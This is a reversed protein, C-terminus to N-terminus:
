FIKSNKSIYYKRDYYKKPNRIKKIDFISILFPIIPCITGVVYSIYNHWNIKVKAKTWNIIYKGDRDKFTGRLIKILDLFTGLGWVVLIVILFMISEDDDLFTNINGSDVLLICLLCFLCFKISAWWVRLVGFGKAYFRQASIPNLFLCLLFAILRSKSSINEIENTKKQSLKKRSGIIVAIVIIGLIIIGM